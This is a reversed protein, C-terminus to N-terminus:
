IREPAKIGLLKLGKKLVQEVSCVLSLRAIRIKADKEMLVPSQEYFSNAANSLEYCYLALANPAYSQAAYKIADPFEIIKRILNLDTASSLSGACNMGYAMKIKDILSAAKVIKLLRARTYLLYPASDGKFDLMKDWDFIIDTTRGDKINAYKVAATGIIEALEDIEAKKLDSRKVELIKAARNRATNLVEEALVGGGERTSFKKGADGLVLGYKIHRLEVGSGIGLLSAVAFVQSMQLSQENGIVYLIKSPNYESIRFKLNALDRTLYLSTGDSKQIMAPPLNLSDLPVIVAGESKEAIKKRFLEEVVASMEKEFASEGIEVDFNINLRNLIVSFEDLSLKKFWKWLRRNEADGLELKKFEERGAGELEPNTKIESHYRVYLELLEKIPQKSIKCDDGWRKYAAILKGFQTGWDGLYNWRTIKYGIEEYMNALADGIAINRLHGIHMPKAINLSAYEVIIRKGAGIRSKGFNNKARLVKKFEESLGARSIWFNIFGPVIEEIKEFMDRPADRKLKEVADKAMVMPNKGEKKALRLVINTSYHGFEPREPVFVDEVGGEGISHKLIGAILEKM